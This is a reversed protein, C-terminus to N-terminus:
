FWKKMNAITESINRHKWNVVNYVCQKPVYDYVHISYSAFRIDNCRSRNPRFCLLCTFIRTHTSDEFKIKEFIFRCAFIM